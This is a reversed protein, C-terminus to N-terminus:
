NATNKKAADLIAQKLAPNVTVGKADARQLVRLAQDPDHDAFWLYALNNWAETYKPDAQLAKEYQERSDANRRLRLLCNGKLCYFVAPIGFPKEGSFPSAAAEDLEQLTQRDESIMPAVCGGSGENRNLAADIQLQVIARTAAIRKQNELSQQDYAKGLNEMSRIATQIHELAV